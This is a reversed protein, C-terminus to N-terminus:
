PLGTNTDAHSIYYCAGPRSHYAMRSLAGSLMEQLATDRLEDNKIPKHIRKGNKDKEGYSVGYPPDTWVLDAVKKGMLTALDNASRADGCMLRHRGLIWVQGPQTVPAKIQAAAADPDLDDETITSNDSKPPDPIEVGWKELPLDGWSKLLRNFDWEGFVGNDKIVIEKEQAETLGKLIIVPVKTYELTQASQLRQNGGLAILEGTRDSCLLPRVEFLEPCERLSETLKESAEETITRPNEPNPRVDDIPIYQIKM